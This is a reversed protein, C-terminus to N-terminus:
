CFPPTLGHVTYAACTVAVHVCKTLKNLPRLHSIEFVMSSCCEPLVPVTFDLLHSCEEATEYEYRMRSKCRRDCYSAKLYGIPVQIGFLGACMFMARSSAVAPAGASGALAVGANLLLTAMVASTLSGQVAEIRAFAKESELVRVRLRLDGTELQTVVDNM